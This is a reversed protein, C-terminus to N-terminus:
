LGLFVFWHIGSVFCLFDSFGMFYRFDFAV